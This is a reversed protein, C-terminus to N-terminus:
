CHGLEHELHAAAPMGVFHHARENEVIGQGKEPLALKSARDMDIQVAQPQTSPNTTPKTAPPAASITFALAGLLLPFRLALLYRM